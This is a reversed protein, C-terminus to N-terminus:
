LHVPTKERQNEGVKSSRDTRYSHFMRSLARFGLDFFFIFAIQDSLWSLWWPVIYCIKILRIWTLSKQGM